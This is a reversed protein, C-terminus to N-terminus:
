YGSYIHFPRQNGVAKVVMEGFDAPINLRFLAPEVAGGSILHSNDNQMKGRKGGNRVACRRAFERM